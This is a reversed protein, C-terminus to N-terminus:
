RTSPTKLHKLSPLPVFRVDEYEGRPWTSWITKRHYVFSWVHIHPTRSVVNSDGSNHWHTEMHQRSESMGKHSRVLNIKIGNKVESKSAIRTELRVGTGKCRRLGGLLLRLLFGSGSGTSTSGLRSSSLWRGSLGSSSGLGGSSCGLLGGWSGLLGSRGLSGWLSRSSGLRSGLLGGSGLGLISGLGLLSRSGLGLLYDRLGRGLLHGSGLALQGSGRTQLLSGGLGLSGGQETGLAHRGTDDLSGVAGPGALHAVAGRETARDGQLQGPVGLVGPLRHGLPVLVNRLLASSKIENRKLKQRVLQLEQM